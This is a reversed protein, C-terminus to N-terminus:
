LGIDLGLFEGATEGFASGADTGLHGIREIPGAPQFHLHALAHRASRIQTWPYLLGASGVVAALNSLQLGIWPGTQLTAVFRHDDLRTHNWVHNFLRAYLLHKAVFFAVGYILFFPILQTLSLVKGRNLALIGANVFSGVFAAGFLLAGARLYASYFPGSPSSFRFFADGLRHSGIVFERQNRIWAPYYFGLTVGVVVAQGLYTLLAMGYTQHFHFRLGRYATNHANFALSRVVIWPFVVVGVAIAALQVMPYVQGFLGYATFLTVVVLNGALLRLPDARYDFGHGLLRTNGRFYRRKRVKAWAAFIGVTLLTLLTNVIWIRFYEREEGHFSFPELVPPSVGAPPPHAPPPEIVPPVASSPFPDAAPVGSPAADSPAPDSM